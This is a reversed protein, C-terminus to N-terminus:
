RGGVRWEADCVGGLYKAVLSFAAYGFFEYGRM